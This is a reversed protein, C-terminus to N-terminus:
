HQGADGATRWPAKPDEYTDLMATALVVAAGAALRAHRIGLKADGVRGHGTGYSNRLGNIGIGISQLGGLIKKTDAAIETDGSVGKAHM